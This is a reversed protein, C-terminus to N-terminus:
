KQNSKKLENLIEKQVNIVEDIRLMWAGLLRLLLIAAVTVAIIIISNLGEM